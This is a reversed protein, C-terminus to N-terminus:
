GCLPIPRVLTPCGPRARVCLVWNPNRLNVGAWVYAVVPERPAMRAGERVLQAQRAPYNMVTGARHTGDVVVYRGQRPSIAVADMENAFITPCGELLELGLVGGVCESGPGTGGGAVLAQFVRAPTPPWEPSPSGTLTSDDVSAARISGLLFRATIVLMM